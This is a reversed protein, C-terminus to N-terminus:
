GAANGPANFDDLDITGSGPINTNANETSQVAPHSWSWSPSSNNNDSHSEGNTFSSDNGWPSSTLNVTVGSNNTITHNYTTVATRTGIRINSRVGAVHRVTVTGAGVTGIFLPSGQGLPSPSAGNAAPGRLFWGNPNNCPGGNGTNDTCNRSTGNIIARGSGSGGDADETIPLIHIWATASTITFNVNGQGSSINQNTTISISGTNNTQSTVTVAIQATTNSATGSASAAVKSVITRTTPVEDGGRYYESISIPHAGGYFAQIESFSIPTGAGNDVGM